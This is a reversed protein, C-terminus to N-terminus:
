SEKDGIFIRLIVQTGQVKGHLDTIDSIAVNFPKGYQEQLLKLRQEVMSMGRSEHNKKHVAENQKLQSSAARGIGNDRLTVQLIDESYLDYYITLARDTQRPMLGHWIANEVFPQLVMPPIKLEEPEIEESKNIQWSFSEGFRYQELELYWTLIEIEKELTIFQRDSSHLIERQLKSFKALYKNAEVVNGQLIFHQVSNLANFIFHPNMQMRLATLQSNAFEKNLRMVELEKERTRAERQKIFHIRRNIVYFLLAAISITLLLIFWWTKWFPPIIRFGYVADTKSWIGKSNMSKVRFLYTGPSLNQFSVSRESGSNRWNTDLGELQYYYRMDEQNPYDLAAFSFTFSNVLHSFDRTAPQSSYSKDAHDMNKEMQRVGSIYIIPANETGVLQDPLFSVIGFVTVAWITKDSAQRLRIYSYGPKIFGDTEEFNMLRNRYKGNRGIVSIGKSSGAWINNDTDALLSLYNTTNLGDKESYQHIIEPENNSNFVCQLIGEGGAALWIYGEKDKIIHNISLQKGPFEFRHLSDKKLYILGEEGGAWITGDPGEIGSYYKAYKSINPLIHHKKFSINGNRNVLIESLGEDGFVLFRNDATKLFQYVSNDHLGNEITFRQVVNNRVLILGQYGSAMWIWGNEDEYIDKIEAGPVLDKKFLDFTTDTKSFVRGNNSGFLLTGNKLERVSYFDIYPAAASVPHHAFIAPKLKILGDHTAVWLFNDDEVVASPWVAYQDSLRIFRSATGKQSHFYFAGRTGVYWSGEKGSGSGPQYFEKFPIVTANGNEIRTIETEVADFYIKSRSVPFLTYIEDRIGSTSYILELQNNFFRFLKHFQSIYVTNDPSKSIHTARRSEITESDKNWQPLLHDPVITKRKGTFDIEKTDVSAPGNETALWITGDEGPFIDNVGQPLTTPASIKIIESNFYCFLGAGSGIWLRNGPGPKLVNVRGILETDKSYAHNLFNYGDYRSLGATTGIWLFGSADKALCLVEPSPLGHSTNYYQYSYSEPQQAPLYSSYCVTIFCLLLRYTTAPNRLSSIYPNFPSRYCCLPCAKPGGAPRFIAINSL